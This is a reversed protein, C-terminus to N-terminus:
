RGGGDDEGPGGEKLMLCVEVHVYQPGRREGVERGGERCV